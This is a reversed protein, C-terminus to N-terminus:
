AAAFAAALEAREGRVARSLDSDALILLHDTVDRSRLPLALAFGFPTRLALLRNLAALQRGRLETYPRHQRELAPIDDLSARVACPTEDADVAVVRALHERPEITLLMVTSVGFLMRAERVLAREVVSANPADLAATLLRSVAHMADAASGTTPPLTM